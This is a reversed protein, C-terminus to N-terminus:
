GMKKTKNRTIKTIAIIGMIELYCKQERTFLTLALYWIM